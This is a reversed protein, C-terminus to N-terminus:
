FLVNTPNAIPAVRPSPAHGPSARPSPYRAICPLKRPTALYTPAQSPSISVRAPPIINRFQSSAQSMPPAHQTTTRPHVATFIESLQRLAQLQATGIHIFLAAPATNHLANSITALDKSSTQPMATKSPFLEVTDVIITGRTKTIHVPYCRYHDLELGLYYGDVGHPYWSARQDPKKIHLSIPVM